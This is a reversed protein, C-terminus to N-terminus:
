LFLHSDDHYEEFKQNCLMIVIVKKDELITFFGFFVFFFCTKVILHTMLNEYPKYKM